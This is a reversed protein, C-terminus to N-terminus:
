FPHSADRTHQDDSCDATLTLLLTRLGSGLLVQGLKGARYTRSSLGSKSPM